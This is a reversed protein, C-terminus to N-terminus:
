ALFDISKIKCVDLLNYKAVDTSSSRHLESNCPIHSKRGLSSSFLLESCCVFGNFNVLVQSLVYIM